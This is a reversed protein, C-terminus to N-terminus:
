LEELEDTKTKLKHIIVYGVFVLVLISLFTIWFLIGINGDNYFSGLVGGLTILFASVISLGVRLTNLTEKIKDVKSM